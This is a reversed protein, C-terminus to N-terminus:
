MITEGGEVEFSFLNQNFNHPIFNCFGSVIDIIQFISWRDSDVKQDGSSSFRFHEFSRIWGFYLLFIEYSKWKIM